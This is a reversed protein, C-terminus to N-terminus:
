YSLYYAFLYGFLKSTAAQWSSQLETRKSEPARAVKEVFMCQHSKLRSALYKLWQGSALEPARCCRFACQRAARKMRAQEAHNVDDPVSIPHCPCAEAWSGLADSDSSLMAVMTVCAWDYDNRMMDNIRQIHVKSSEELLFAKQSDGGSTTYRRTNWSARLLKEMPLVQIM